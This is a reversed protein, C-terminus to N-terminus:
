KTPHTATFQKQGIVITDNNSFSNAFDIGIHCSINNIPTKM